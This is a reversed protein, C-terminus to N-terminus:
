TMLIYILISGSGGIVYAAAWGRASRPQSGVHVRYALAIGSIILAIGGVLVLGM